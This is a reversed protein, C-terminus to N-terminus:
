VLLDHEMAFLTAAVRSSSATKNYIHELHHRVTNETIGLRKGIDRRTLGKSAIRLVEVERDTLGAPWQAPTSPAAVAGLGGAVAFVVDPDFATGSEASLVKLAEDLPLGSRSPHDHTLDDLRDAVAIIRAALPIDKGKLGRFYGNGDFREHHAGVAPTFASMAGVRNLVREAHYPHLRIAERESESLRDEPKDLYYSPVAVLGLDHLLATRHILRQDEDSCGMLAATRKAIAAVRRSHAATYPSKLDIFDAFAMAVDDFRGEDVTALASDPELRLVVELIPAEEMDRWFDDQAGLALFADVVAPDFAKGRQKQAVEFAAERGGVRHFPALLFAALVVRSVPNIAEGRLGNPQGGGDWNEFLDLIADQVTAPMGMRGAIRASVACATVYGEKLAGNFRTVFDFYTKLRQGLGLGTALHRRAWAVKSPLNEGVGFILRERRATIEDTRLMSAMVSTWSTCGADKFLSAYYTAIRQEDPMGLEQALRTAIYCSRLSDELELGFALDSAFAFAGLLEGM